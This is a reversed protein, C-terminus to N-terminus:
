KTLGDGNRGMVCGVTFRFDVSDYGLGSGNQHLQARDPMAGMGRDADLNKRLM